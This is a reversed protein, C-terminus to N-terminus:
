GSCDNRDNEAEDRLQKYVLYVLNTRGSAGIKGSANKLHDTATGRTIGMKQAIDDNTMGNAAWAVAELERVTLNM